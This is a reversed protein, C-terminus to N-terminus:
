CPAMLALQFQPWELPENADNYFKGKKQNKRQNSLTANSVLEKKTKFLKLYLEPVQSMKKFSAQWEIRQVLSQGAPWISAM